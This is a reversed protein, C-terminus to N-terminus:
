NEQIVFLGCIGDQRVEFTITETETSIDVDTVTEDSWQGEGTLCYVELQELREICGRFNTGVDFARYGWSVQALGCPTEGTPLAIDREPRERPLPEVYPDPGNTPQADNNNGGCGALVVAFLIAFGLLMWHKGSTIRKSDISLVSPNNM